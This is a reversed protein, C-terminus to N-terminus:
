HAIKQLRKPKLSSKASKAILKQSKLHNEDEALM